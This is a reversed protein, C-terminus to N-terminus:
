YEKLLTEKYKAVEGYLQRFDPEGAVIRLSAQIDKQIKVLNPDQLRHFIERACSHLYDKLCIYESHSALLKRKDSQMEINPKEEKKIREQYYTISSTWAELFKAREVQRERYIVTWGEESRVSEVADLVLAAQFYLREQKTEDMDPYNEFLTNEWFFMCELYEDEGLGLCLIAALDAYCERYLLLNDNLRNTLERIKKDQTEPTFEGAYAIFSQRITENELYTAALRAQLKRDFYVERIANPMTQRIQNIFQQSGNKADKNRRNYANRLAVTIEALIATSSEDRLQYADRGDLVWAEAIMGACAKIIKELRFKRQRTKDGTYHSMEHSLIVAVDFPQYMLAPPLSVLLPIRGQYEDTGSSQVRDDLICLTHARHTIDYTILPTFCKRNPDQNIDSLLANYKHLLAMYFVMLSAPTYYRSSQLEPNQVLQGQLRLIDSELIDWANLFDRIDNDQRMGIGSCNELRELLATLSPWLLITLDDTVCNDMMTLLTNTQATLTSFWLYDEYRSRLGGLKNQLNRQLSSFQGTGRLEKLSRVQSSVIGYPVGIRSIIDDFADYMSINYVDNGAQVTPFDTLLFRIYDIFEQLNCNKFDYLADATGVVFQLNNRNPLHAWFEEAYRVARVSFRISACSLTENYFDKVTRRTKRAGEWVGFETYLDNEDLAREAKFVAHIGCYSYVDAVSATELIRQMVKLCANLSNSKLGVVVDGLELTHYFVCHVLEGETIISQEGLTESPAPAGASLSQISTKLVTIDDQNQEQSPLPAFHVRSIAMCFSRMDWFNDFNCTNDPYHLLYLPYVYNNETTHHKVIDAEITKLTNADAELKRVQMFDFHGLCIFHNEEIKLKDNLPAEASAKVLEVVRLDNKIDLTDPM